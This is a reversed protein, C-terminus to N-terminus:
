GSVASAWHGAAVRVEERRGHRLADIPTLGGLEADPSTLWSASTWLSVHAQRLIALIEGFGDVLGRVGFQFAPYVVQGSGTTLALVGPETALLPESGPGLLQVVTEEGYCPGLQASWRFVAVVHAAAAHGLQDPNDSAIVRGDADLAELSRAFSAVVRGHARRWELGRLSGPPVGSSTWVLAAADQLRRSAPSASGQEEELDPVAALRM